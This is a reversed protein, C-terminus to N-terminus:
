SSGEMRNENIILYYISIHSRIAVKSDIIRIVRTVNILACDVNQFCFIYLRYSVDNYLCGVIGCLISIFNTALMLFFGRAVVIIIEDTM